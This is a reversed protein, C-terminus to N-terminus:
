SGVVDVCRAGRDSIVIVEQGREIPQDAYAIFAESGGRISVSVEGARGGGPIAVTVYGSKGALSDDPYTM